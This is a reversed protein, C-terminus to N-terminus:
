IVRKDDLEYSDPIVGFDYAERYARLSRKGVLLHDNWGIVNEGLGM